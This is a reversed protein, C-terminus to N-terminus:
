DTQRKVEERHVEPIRYPKTNIGRTPDTAPTPIVHEAAATFTLKDGPLYFVDNYEECIKILYIREESNLHDTRLENRSKSLRHGIEAVSTSFILAKESDDKETEELEVFPIEVTVDEESTNVISAVCYRDVGTLTEKSYVGPALEGKSIIRFGRSKTPLRVTSEARSKLTLAHNVDTMVDPEDDFDMVVEGM